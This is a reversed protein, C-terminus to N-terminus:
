AIHIVPALPYGAAQAPTPSGIIKGLDGINGRLLPSM